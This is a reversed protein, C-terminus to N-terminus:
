HKQLYQLEKDLAPTLSLSLPMIPSAMSCLSKTPFIPNHSSPHKHFGGM